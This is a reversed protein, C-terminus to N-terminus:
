FTPEYNEETGEGSLREIDQVWNELHWFKYPTKEFYNNSKASLNLSTSEYNYKSILIMGGM